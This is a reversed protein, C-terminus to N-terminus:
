FPRRDADYGGGRLSLPRRNTRRGSFRVARQIRQNVAAAVAVPRVDGFVLTYYLACLHWVAFSSLAAGLTLHGREAKNAQEIQLRELLWEKQTETLWRAQRPGDPLYLLTVGGFVIAPIGELLFLWQWGAMGGIGRMQLLAGSLPGGVIFAAANATMFWAVIRARESNTFWTTLYYLVGPFFGAEALGLLFRMVYFSLASRIFLMSIAVIGWSVMIRAIWRRAGVRQLIVNSPVEFLFYGIFFIGAGFGYVSKSFRLDDKMQIQAFGVNVRDLYAIVYLFFLFPILRWITKKLVAQKEAENM